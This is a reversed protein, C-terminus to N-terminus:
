KFHKVVVPMVVEVIVVLSLAFLILTFAFALAILRGLVQRRISEGYQKDDMSTWDYFLLEKLQHAVIACGVVFAIGAYWYM